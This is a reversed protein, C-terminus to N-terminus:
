FFYSLWGQIIACAGFCRRDSLQFDPEDANIAGIPDLAPNGSQFFGHRIPSFLYVSLQVFHLVGAVLTQMLQFEPHKEDAPNWGDNKGSKPHQFEESKEM